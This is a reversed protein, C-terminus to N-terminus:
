LSLWVISANNLRNNKKKSLFPNKLIEGTLGAFIAIVGIPTLLHLSGVSM